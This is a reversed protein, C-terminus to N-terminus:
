DNLIGWKWEWPYNLVESGDVIFLLRSAFIISVLTHFPITIILLLYASLNRLFWYM